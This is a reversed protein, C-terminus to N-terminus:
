GVRAQGSMYAAIALALYTFFHGAVSLKYSYGVTVGQVLSAIETISLVINNSNLTTPLTTIMYAFLYYWSISCGALIFISSLFLLVVPVFTMGHPVKIFALVLSVIVNLALIILGLILLGPPASIPSTLNICTSNGAETFCFQFFGISTDVSVYSINEQIVFTSVIWHTTSVSIIVLIMALLSVFACVGYCVKKLITTTSGESESM